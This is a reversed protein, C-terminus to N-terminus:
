FLQGRVAGDPFPENHVNVYYSSPDQQIARLVEPEAARM